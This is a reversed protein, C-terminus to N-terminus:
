ALPRRANGEPTVETGAVEGEIALQDTPDALYSFPEQGAAAAPAGLCALATLLLARRLLRSVIACRAAAQAAPRGV